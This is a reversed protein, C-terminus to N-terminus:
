YLAATLRRRYDRAGPSDQGLEALVGVVVRRIEDSADGAGNELAGLLAEVGAEAQGSDILSLAEALEPSGARELEIHATLGDAEFSGSVGQLVSLAEEDDGRAHLLRALPVAADARGPEQELARRLSAEDGAQVLQDAASPLLSDFFQEVAAPPQAGVFEAMVKGDRFAKVAPIGRIGFSAALAPNADTDLKALVLKGQRAEAAKDLVPGLVRCPGCWEAWFDVVVPLRHSAEIVEAEFNGENVEIAM